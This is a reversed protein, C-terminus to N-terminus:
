LAFLPTAHSRGGRFDIKLYTRTHSSAPSRLAQMSALGETLLKTMGLDAGSVTEKPQGPQRIAGPLGARRLDGPHGHPQYDGGRRLATFM